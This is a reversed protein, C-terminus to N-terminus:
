KRELGGLKGKEPSNESLLGQEMLAKYTNCSGRIYRSGMKYSTTGREDCKIGECKQLPCLPSEKKKRGSKKRSM